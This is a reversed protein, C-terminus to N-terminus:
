WKTSTKSNLWGQQTHTETLLIPDVIRHTEFNNNLRTTTIEGWSDRKYTTNITYCQQKRDSFQTDQETTAQLNGLVM